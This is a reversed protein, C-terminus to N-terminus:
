SFTRTGESVILVVVYFKPTCVSVNHALTWLKMSIKPHFVRLIQMYRELSSSPLHRVIPFYQQLYIQKDTFIDAFKFRALKNKKDRCPVVNIISM